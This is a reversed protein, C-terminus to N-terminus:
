LSCPWLIVWHFLKRRLGVHGRLAHIQLEVIESLPAASSVHMINLWIITPRLNEM